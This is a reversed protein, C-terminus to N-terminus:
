FFLYLLVLGIVGWIIFEIPIDIGTGPNALQFSLEENTPPTKGTYFPNKSGSKYAEYFVNKRANDTHFTQTFLASADPEGYEDTPPKSCEYISVKVGSIDLDHRYLVRVLGDTHM